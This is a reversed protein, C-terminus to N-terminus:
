DAICRKLERKTQEVRAALLPHLEARERKVGTETLRLRRGFFVDDEYASADFFDGSLAGLVTIAGSSLGPAIYPKYGTARVSLNATLTEETLARSLADDYGEGTDNAVILGQGHPGFVRGRALFDPIGRKKACYDARALMVGLGCGFIRRAPVGASLAVGCLPDVPDSVQFFLGDYDAGAAQEAYPLLISRNKEYQAMRVDAITSSLPPVGASAAFVFADCGCFLEGRDLVIVRPRQGNVPLIQNMEQEYRLCRAEDPDFVGITGVLDGGLLMLGTLLAGGVDGLGVLHLTLGSREASFLPGHGNM